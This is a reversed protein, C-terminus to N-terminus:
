TGAIGDGIVMVMGVATKKLFFFFSGPMGLNWLEWFVGPKAGLFSWANDRGDTYTIYRMFRVYYTPFVGPPISSPKPSVFSLLPFLSTDFSPIKSYPLPFFITSLM